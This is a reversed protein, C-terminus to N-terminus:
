DSDPLWNPHTLSDLRSVDQFRYWRVNEETQRLSLPGDESIQTKNESKRGRTIKNEGPTAIKKM